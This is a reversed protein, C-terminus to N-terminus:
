LPEYGEDCTGGPPADESGPARVGGDGATDLEPPNHPPDIDAARGSDPSPRDPVPPNM